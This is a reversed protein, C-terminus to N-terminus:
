LGSPALSAGAGGEVAILAACLAEHVAMGELAYTKVPKGYLDGAEPLLLTTAHHVPPNVAGDFRAPDRGALALRTQPRLASFDLPKKAMASPSGRTRSRAGDPGAATMSRRM